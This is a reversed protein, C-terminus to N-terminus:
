DLRNFVVQGGVITAVARGLVSRGTFPTNRGKSLWTTPDLEHPDEPNILTVDAVSGPALSGGPRGIIAAPRTSMVDIMKLADLVGEKVLELALPAASELGVIGFAASGFSQEDKELVSHPAHDTAIADITGDALGKRVAERHKPSRLPPNVKARPSYGELLEDSGVLHHPTVEATVRVGRAKAEAILKVAGMSSIHQLHIRAGIYEALLIDRMVCIDESVSPMGSLGLRTAIQGEHAVGHGSLSVDEPHEMILTGFTEAYEMARRLVGTSVVPSGDDSFGVAGAELLDGYETIEKGARGKTAAAVPYIRCGEAESSRRLIMETMARSDNTPSTNPMCCVATFGGAAGSAMGSKIDEKYEHGPERLHTHLDILGPSVWFGTADITKDVTGPTGQPAEIVRDDDIWVDGVADVGRSPDLVRGGKIQILM